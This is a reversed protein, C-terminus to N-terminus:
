DESNLLLWPFPVSVIGLAGVETGVHFEETIQPIAASYISSAFTIGATTMGYLLTTVAKKKLPWNMPRYPDDKGDFDVLVDPGTKTHSLPHYFSDNQNAPHASPRSRLRSLTILGSNHRSTTPRRQIGELSPNRAYEYSHRRDEEEYKYSHEPINSGQEEREEKEQEEELNRLTNVSQQRQLNNMRSSTM